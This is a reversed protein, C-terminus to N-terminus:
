EYSNPTFSKHKYTYQAASRFSTNDVMSGDCTGFLVRTTTSEDVLDWWIVQFLKSLCTNFGKSASRAKDTKVSCCPSRTFEKLVKAFYSIMIDSENEREVNKQHLGKREKSINPFYIRRLVVIVHMEIIFNGHLTEVVCEVLM